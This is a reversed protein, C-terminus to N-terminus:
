ERPFIRKQGTKREPLIGISMDQKLCLTFMRKRFMYRYLLDSNLYKPVTHTQWATFTEGEMNMIRSEALAKFNSWLGM